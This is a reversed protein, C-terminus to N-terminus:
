AGFNYNYGAILNWRYVRTERLSGDDLKLFAFFSDRPTFLEASFFFNSQDCTM